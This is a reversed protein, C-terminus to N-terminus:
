PYITRGAVDRLDNEESLYRGKEKAKRAQGMVVLTELIPSVDETKARFFHKTIQDPAHTKDAWKRGLKMQDILGAM